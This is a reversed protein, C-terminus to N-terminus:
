RGAGAAIGDVLTEFVAQAMSQPARAGPKDWEVSGNMAEPLVMRVLGLDAGAAEFVRRIGLGRVQKLIQQKSEM